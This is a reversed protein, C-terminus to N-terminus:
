NGEESQEVTKLFISELSVRVPTVSQISAGADIAVRLVDNVNKELM